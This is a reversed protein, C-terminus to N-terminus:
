LIRPRATRANKLQAQIRASVAAATQRGGLWTAADQAACAIVEAAEHTRGAQLLCQAQAVRAADLYYDDDMALSAQTCREFAKAAADLNHVRYELYGLEFLYPPHDPRLAISRSIAQIADNLSDTLQCVVALKSWALADDPEDLTWAKALALAEPLRQSGIEADIQKALINAM